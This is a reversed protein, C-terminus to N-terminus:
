RRRCRVGAIGALLLLSLWGLSGGGSPSVPAPPGNANTTGSESGGSSPANVSITVLANNSDAFADKVGYTLSDSGAYGTTPTYVFAGTTADLTINGHVPASVVFYTLTQSPDPDSAKLKSDAASNETTTLTSNDAIPAAYVTVSVIATNSENYSDRAVFTFSDSGTYGISAKYIYAGTTANLTITGHAPQSGLGYTLSQTKDSDTALLNGSSTGHVILTSDSATPAAYDTISVTAASSTAYSDKVNFTFSDSGTYGPNATYIYAGTSSNSLTLSGHSPTSVINYIFQQTPDSDVATLTGSANVHAILIANNAVPPTYVTLTATGTNSTDYADSATFTFSDAGTFNPDTSTYTFPVTFIGNNVTATGLVLTGHAPTTVINIAPVQTPDSETGTLVLPPSSTVGHLTFAASQTVAPAMYDTISVTATSSNNHADSVSFTFADAGTYNGSPTYTFDGASTIQVSGHSPQSAIGFTLTQAVDPDLGTLTGTIAKTGHATYNSSPCATPGPYVKVTVTAPSSQYTGDSILFHFSDTGSSGNGGGCVASLTGLYSASATYTYSGNPSISVTGGNPSLYSTDLSYSATEGSGVTGTLQSPGTVYVTLSGNNAVPLTHVVTTISATNNSPNPDVQDASVTGSNTITTSAAPATVTISPQWVGNPALSNLTCTVTGSSNACSGDGGGSSQYTLNDPLADTLKVNTATVSSDNNTITFDYVISGGLPVPSSTASLALSLDVEPAYIYAQGAQADTSSGAPKVGANPDGVLIANGGSSAAVAFGFQDNATDAPDGRAPLPNWIYIYSTGGGTNCTGPTTGSNNYTYLYAKGAAAVSSNSTGAQSALTAGPAGIIANTGDPSLAVATGFYDKNGPSDGCADPDDLEDPNSWGSSYIYVKGSSPYSITNFANTVSANSAGVVGVIGNASLAVASGFGDNSAADSETLSVNPVAPWSSTYNYVYAEGAASSLTTTGAPAAATGPAGLLAENGTGALAVAYGLKDNKTKQPDDFEKTQSWTNSTYRFTYAKGAAAEAALTTTGSQPVYITAGPAGILATAGNDSLAVSFGMHDSKAPQPEKFEGTQSWTNSAYRFAYATGAFSVPTPPASTSGSPVYVTAGYAGILATTGDSSLTVTSGFADGAINGPDDFEMTEMWTGSSDSFVYAKGGTGAGPVGVLATQGDSSLAVAYGFTDNTAPVPETLATATAFLPDISVPYAANRTDVAIALRNAALIFRAPLRRHHADYVILEGYRLVARGTSNTFALIGHSLAPVLSGRLNFYLEASPAHGTEPKRLTFGQEIGFPSNGYWESLEAGHSISVRAGDSVPTGYQLPVNKNGSSYAVLRLQLTDRRGVTLTAGLETVRMVMHQAPNPLIVSQDTLARAPWVVPMHQALARALVPALGTPLSVAAQTHETASALTGNPAGSHRLAHLGTMVTSGLLVFVAFIFAALTCTLFLRPRFFHSFM